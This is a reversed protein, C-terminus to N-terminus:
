RPAEQGAGARLEDGTVLLFLGIGVWVWFTLLRATM